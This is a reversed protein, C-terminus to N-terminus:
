ESAGATAGDDEFGLDAGEFLQGVGDLVDETIHQSVDIFAAQAAQVQQVMQGVLDRLEKPACNDFACKADIVSCQHQKLCDRFKRNSDVLDEIQTDVFEQLKDASGGVFALAEQIQADSILGLTPNIQELRMGSACLAGFGLLAIITKM